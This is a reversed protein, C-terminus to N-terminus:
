ARKKGKVFVQYKLEQKLVTFFRQQAQGFLEDLADTVAQQDLDLEVREIPERMKGAYRGKSMRRKPEGTRQFVTLKGNETTRVFAGDFSHRGARVGKRTQKAAGLRHAAIPQLGAWVKGYRKRRTAKFAAIRQRVLKAAVKMEKSVSQVAKSRLWNVTKNLARVEAAEMQKMSAGFADALIVVGHTDITLQM